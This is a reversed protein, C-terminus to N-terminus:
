LGEALAVASDGDIVLGRIAGSRLLARTAELKARGGSLLVTETARLGDLGVAICRRALPHDVPRGEADFFVGNTDGVAGAARLEAMEEAGIMGQRRLLSADTLEGVSILALEARRALSLPESVARQALLMDRDAESDVIFPVPLFYGEGGTAQALTQVVDFPNFASNATLSGMLSIFKAGPAAVGTMQRGLQALTRGWGTGVVTDPRAQLRDRLFRAGAIGVMRLATEAAAEGPELGLVPTAVCTQLGFAARIAEEVKLLGLDRENISISVIGLDRAQALLRNVRARTLGLRRSVAEQNLGAVHYLWAARTMLEIETLERM